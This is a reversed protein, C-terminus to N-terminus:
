YRFGIGASVRSVDVQAKSVSDNILPVTLSFKRYDVGIEAFAWKMFPVVLRAELYVPPSNLTLAENTNTSDGDEVIPSSVKTALGISGGVSIIASDNIIFGQEGFIGLGNSRVDRIVQFVPNEATANPSASLTSKTQFSDVLVLGAGTWAQSNMYNVRGGGRLQLTQTSINQTGIVKGDRVLDIVPSSNLNSFHAEAKFNMKLPGVAIPSRPFIGLGAFEIGKQTYGPTLFKNLALGPLANQSVQYRPAVLLMSQGTSSEARNSTTGSTSFSKIAMGRLTSCKDEGTLVLAVLRGNKLKEM